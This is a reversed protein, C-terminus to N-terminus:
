PLPEDGRIDRVFDAGSQTFQPRDRIRAFFAALRAESEGLLDFDQTLQGHLFKAADEGAVRIVGLQPLPAVGDLVAAAPALPATTSLATMGSNDDDNWEM